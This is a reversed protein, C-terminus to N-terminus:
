KSANHKDEAAQKCEGSQWDIGRASLENNIIQLSNGSRHRHHLDHCLVETSAAKADQKTYPTSQCASVLLMTSISALILPLKM